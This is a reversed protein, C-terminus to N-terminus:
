LLKKGYNTESRQKWVQDAYGDIRGSPARKNIPALPHRFFRWVVSGQGV